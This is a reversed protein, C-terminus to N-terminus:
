ILFPNEAREAGITTFEGHGPIVEIADDLTMLRERISRMLQAHDGGPLDTRGIGSAFLTDGTLVLKADEFLLCCGGPTHGPTHLVTMRITGWSLQQGDHLPAEIPPLPPLAFGFMQAQRAAHDYLPQDDPHLMLTGGRQAKLQGTALVHDFHAHTHVIAALELRHKDLMALVDALNGGPDVVVGQRTEPCGLVTCNVGLPGVALTEVIM